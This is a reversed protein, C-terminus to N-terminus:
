MYLLLDRPNKKIRRVVKAPGIITMGRKKGILMEVFANKIRSLNGEDQATLDLSSLEIGSFRPNIKKMTEEILYTEEEPTLKADILILTSEQLDKVMSSFSQKGLHEYPLLKIKLNM